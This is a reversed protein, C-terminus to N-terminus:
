VLSKYKSKWREVPLALLLVSIIVASLLSWYIIYSTRYNYWFMVADIVHYVFFCCMILFLRFSYKYSIAAGVFSFSIFLFDDAAMKFYWYRYIKMDYNMFYDVHENMQKPWIETLITALETLAHAVILLVCIWIVFRRMNNVEGQHRHRRLHRALTVAATQRPHQKILSRKGSITNREGNKTILLGNSCYLIRKLPKEAAISYLM